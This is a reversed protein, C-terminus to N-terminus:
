HFAMCLEFFTKRCFVPGYLDYGSFTFVQIYKDGLHDGPLSGEGVGRSLRWPCKGQYSYRGWFIEGLVFVGSVEGGM